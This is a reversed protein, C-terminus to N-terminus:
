ISAQQPLSSMQNSSTRSAQSTLYRILQDFEQSTLTLMQWSQYITVTPQLKLFQLQKMLPSSYVTGRASIQFNICNDQRNVNIIRYSLHNRFRTFADAAKALSKAQALITKLHSTELKIAKNEEVITFPIKKHNLFATLFSINNDVRIIAEILTQTLECSFNHDQTVPYLIEIKPLLHNLETEYQQKDKLLVQLQKFEKAILSIQYHTNEQLQQTTYSKQIDAAQLQKALEVATAQELTDLIYRNGKSIVRVPINYAELQKGTNFSSLPNLWIRVIRSLRRAFNTQYQRMRETPSFGVVWQFLRYGFYGGINGASVTCLLSIAGLTPFLFLMVSIGFSMGLAILLFKTTNRLLRSVYPLTHMAQKCELLTQACKEILLSAPSMNFPDLGDRLKQVLDLIAALSKRSAEFGGDSLAFAEKQMAQLYLKLELKIEPTLEAFFSSEILTQEITCLLVKTELFNDFHKLADGKFIFTGDHYIASKWEVLAQQNLMKNIFKVRCSTDDFEFSINEQYIARLNEAIRIRWNIDKFKKNIVKIKKSFLRLYTTENFTTKEFVGLYDSVLHELNAIGAPYALKFKRYADLKESLIVSYECIALMKQIKKSMVHCDGIPTVELNALLDCYKRHLAMINNQYLDPLKLIREKFEGINRIFDKFIPSLECYVFQLASHDLNITTATTISSVKWNTSISFKKLAAPDDFVIQYAKSHELCLLKGQFQHKVLRELHAYLLLIYM